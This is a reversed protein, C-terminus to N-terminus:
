LGAVSLRNLRSSSKRRWKRTLRKKQRTSKTIKASQSTNCAQLLADPIIESHQLRGGQDPPLQRLIRKPKNKINPSPKNTPYRILHSTTQPPLPFNVLKSPHHNSLIHRHFVATPYLESLSVSTLTSLQSLQHSIRRPYVLISLHWVSNLEQIRSRKSHQTDRYSVWLGFFVDDGGGSGRGSGEWGLGGLEMWGRKGGLEGWFDGVGDVKRMAGCIEVNELIRVNM